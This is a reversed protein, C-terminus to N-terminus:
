PVYLRIMANGGVHRAAIDSKLGYSNLDLSTVHAGNTAGMLNVVEAMRSYGGLSRYAMGFFPINQLPDRADKKKGIPTFLALNQGNYGAVGKGRIDSFQPMRSFMWTTYGMHLVRFGVRAIAGKDGGFLDDAAQGQYYEIDENNFYNKLAQDKDQDINIGMMGLYYNTGPVQADTLKEIQNMLAINFTGAPVPLNTGKRKIYTEIGETTQQPENNSAIIMNTSPEEWLLAQDIKRAHEYEMNHQGIIRYGQITTGDSYEKVWLQDTSQGGHIKFNTKLIQTYWYDQLPKNVQGLPQDTGDAFSNGTIIMETGATVAAANFTGLSSSNTLKISITVTNTGLGSVGTVTAHYGENPAPFAIRDNVEMPNYYYPTTSYPFTTSGTLFDNSAGSNGLVFTYTGLLASVTTLGGSGIHFTPHIWDEEYQTGTNRSVSDVMGLNKLINFAYMGQGGHIRFFKDRVEPQMFDFASILHGQAISSVSTTQAM